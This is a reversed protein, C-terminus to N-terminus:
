FGTAAVDDLQLEEVLGADVSQRIKARCVSILLASLRCYGLKHIRPEFRCSSSSRNSKHSDLQFRTIAGVSGNEKLVARLLFAEPCPAKGGMGASFSKKEFCIRLQFGSLAVTQRIREM